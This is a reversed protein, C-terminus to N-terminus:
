GGLYESNQRLNQNLDLERQPIPKILNKTSWNNNAAGRGFDIDNAINILGARHWRVLDFYRHGEFALEIRREHMLFDFMQDVSVAGSRDPLFTAGPDARRRVQNILTAAGAVDGNGLLRAEALMLLVDSYRIIRENNLTYNPPFKDTLDDQRIYKSPTSGSVSWLSSFNTAGIFPDGDLYITEIRRPDNAEFEDQLPQTVHVNGYGASTGGPACNGQDCAPRQFVSRGSGAHGINQDEYLAFDTPLWTNFDGRSFQIEFLSEANNEANISFNNGYNAILSYKGVLSSLEIIANDYYADNNEWQARYLYIRGLLGIASGSTVRGLDAAPHSEPLNTKAFQLDSIILDWIEGPQSNSKRSDEITGIFKDSVPANGFNIALMFHFYARLFKAEAEFEVKRSEDTFGKADPLKALIVNARQIGKYFTQWLYYFHDNTPTWVFDEQNNTANREPMVDDDPYLVAQYWGLGSQEYYLNLLTSYPSFSAAEFDQETQYYTTEDIQGLQTLDLQKDCQTFTLCFIVLLLSFLKKMNM